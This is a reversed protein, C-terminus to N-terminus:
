NIIRMAILLSAKIFCINSVAAEDCLGAGASLTDAVHQSVDEKAEAAAIGGQAYYTNSEGLKDKSLLAIKINPKLKLLELVYCLGAIGSGIVIVDFHLRQGCQSTIKLM